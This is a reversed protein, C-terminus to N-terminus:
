WTVFAAVAVLIKYIWKLWSTLLIDIYLLLKYITVFDVVEAVVVVAVAIVAVLIKYIYDM